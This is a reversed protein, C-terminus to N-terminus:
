VHPGPLPPPPGHWDTSAQCGCLRPLCTPLRGTERWQRWKSESSRVVVVVVRRRRPSPSSPLIHTGCAIALIGRHARLLTRSVDAMGKGKGKGKGHGKPWAEVAMQGRPRHVAVLCLRLQREVDFLCRACVLRRGLLLMNPTLSPPLSPSLFLSRFACSPVPGPGSESAYRRDKGERGVEELICRRCMPSGNM